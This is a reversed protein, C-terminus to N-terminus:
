WIDNQGCRRYHEPPYYTNETFMVMAIIFGGITGIVLGLIGIIWVIM